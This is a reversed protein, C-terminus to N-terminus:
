QFKGVRKELQTIKKVAAKLQKKYLKVEATIRAYAAVSVTFETIGECKQMVMPLSATECCKGFSSAAGVPCSTRDVMPTGDPTTCACTVQTPRACRASPAANIVAPDVTGTCIGNPDFYLEKCCAGYLAGSECVATM